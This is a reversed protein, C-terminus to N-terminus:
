LTVPTRRTSKRDTLLNSESLALRGSAQELDVRGSVGARVRREIQDYILRHTAYNEESLAVLGRHRLVDFYARATESAAQESADLVEYYRTRAAHNLRRVENRTRFGDFLMQSLSVSVRDRSFTNQAYRPDDIREEGVGAELDVRPLYGGRAVATQETAAEYEHWAALVEPNELVSKRAADALNTLAGPSPTEQASVGVAALAVASRFLM